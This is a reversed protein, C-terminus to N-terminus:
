GSWYESRSFEMSQLLGHPRLSDSVVLRSESQHINDVNFNYNKNPLNDTIPRLHVNIKM